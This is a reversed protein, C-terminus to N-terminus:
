TIRTIAYYSVTRQQAAQLAKSFGMFNGLERDGYETADTMFSKAAETVSEFLFSDLLDREVNKKLM